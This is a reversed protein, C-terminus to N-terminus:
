ELELVLRMGSQVPSGPAPSQRVVWGFGSLEVDIDNRDLLPLLTRKPLGTYDPVVDNLPPLSVPNVQIRGTHALSTDGAVPVGLYPILFDFYERLVPTVIRGGYFDGTKPHDISMYVILSPDDVPLIALTSAIFADTSYRGTSPDVKEATGTKAGIRVGAFALRRATGDVVAQEMAHLMLEAVDPRLVERVPIRGYDRVVRGNPSVIKDIINPKILVGRNAFPTAAAVLQVATVAVEQGIAITPKTRGSWNEPRALLGAEEGNVLVGTQQGFGFLRLMNYFSRADVSESAIAAGVNSSLRIIGTTDITGYNALDRIPPDTGRYLGTTAFRTTPGIGGLQLMGAVSFVKFVSGPEYVDAILRNRRDADAYEFFRNPDYAPVSVYGLIDGSRADMTLLTVSEARHEELAREALRYSEHQVSLDITLFVQDGFQRSRGDPQLWSDMEFEIGALGRGDAGVFGLLTGLGSREPYTRGYDLRLRIGVLAGQEQARRIAESQAPSITRQITVSGSSPSLMQEMRSVPQNLISALLRASGPADAIEPRWAWVTDLQTQIALIRGNRDLIPGRELLGVVAASGAPREVVMIRAYRTALLLVAVGIM